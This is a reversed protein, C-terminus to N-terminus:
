LYLSEYTATVYGENIESDVNCGPGCWVQVLLAYEM